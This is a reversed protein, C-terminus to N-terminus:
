RPSPLAQLARSTAALLTFRGCKLPLPLGAHPAPSMAWPSQAQPHQPPVAPIPTCPATHHPATTSAVCHATSGPQELQSM